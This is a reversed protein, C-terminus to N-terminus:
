RGVLTAVQKPLVTLQVPTSILITNVPKAKANPSITAFGRFSMNYTGPARQGRRHRRSECRGQRSRLDSEGFTMGPPLEGPVPAVQFNAKFLRPVYPDAQASDGTKDGLSVVAKDTAPSSSAPPRTAFRWCWSATSVAHGHPHEAPDARGLHDVGSRAQHM